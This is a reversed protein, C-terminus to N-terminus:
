NDSDLKEVVDFFVELGAKIAKTDVADVTDMPTHYVAARANNGWPMAMMTTAMVGVKALEGADTGGTLFEIPKSNSPYGLKECSATCISAFEESLQVSGNIDSTLFFMDKLDYPCDINFLYTPVSELMAKNQKAFAFAGRLGEEEADFSAAIVRTNLLGVGDNKMQSYQRAAEVAMVSSILNDGAGPTSDKSAFFWLQVVISMGLAAVLGLVYVVASSLGLIACIASLLFVGILIGIGGIVRLSYLKPQHILFNFIKASDHHGSIIVQQKVEGLPEIVGMVNVGTKKKYLFDITHKYLFFQFVLILVGILLLIATVWALNLLLFVTGLVYLVVLIRIWGLFAGTHVGFEQRQTSDCFTDMEEKLADACGSCSESGAQRPGFTDILRSTLDFVKKTMTEFNIKM